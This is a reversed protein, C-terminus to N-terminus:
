TSTERKPRQKTEPSHRLSIVAGSEKPRGLFATDGACADSKSNQCKEYELISDSLIRYLSGVRFGDLKGQKVLKRVMEASCSWRDALQEPNLPRDTELLDGFVRNSAAQQKTKLNPTLHCPTEREDCVPM